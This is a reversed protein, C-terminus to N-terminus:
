WLVPTVGAAGGLLAEVLFGELFTRGWLFITSSLQESSTGRSAPLPQCQGQPTTPAPLGKMYWGKESPLDHSLNTWSDCKSLDDSM